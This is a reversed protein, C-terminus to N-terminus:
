SFELLYIPRTRISSKIIYLNVSRLNINGNEEKREEEKKKVNM